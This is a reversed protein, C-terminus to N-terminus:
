KLRGRKRWRIRIKRVNLALRGIPMSSISLLIVFILIAFSQFAGFIGSFESHKLGYDLLVEKSTISTDKFINSFIIMIMGALCYIVLIIFNMILSTYIYIDSACRLSLRAHRNRFIKVAYLINKRYTNKGFLYAFKGLKWLIIIGAIVGFLNAIATIFQSEAFVEIIRNM